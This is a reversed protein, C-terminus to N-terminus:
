HEKTNKEGNNWTYLEISRKLKQSSKLNKMGDLIRFWKYQVLQVACGRTLHRYIAQM